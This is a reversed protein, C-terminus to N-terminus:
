LHYKIYQLNAIIELKLIDGVGFSELYSTQNNGSNDFRSLTLKHVLEKNSNSRYLGPSSEEFTHFGGNSSSQVYTMQFGISADNGAPGQAGDAGDAGDTGNTGNMGPSGQAGDQGDAGAPRGQGMLVMKVMPEMQVEAGNAM